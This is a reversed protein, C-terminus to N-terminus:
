RLSTLVAAGLNEVDILADTVNCVIRTGVLVILGLVVGKAILTLTNLRL